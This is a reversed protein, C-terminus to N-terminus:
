NLQDYCFTTSYFRDLPSPAPSTIQCCMIWARAEAKTNRVWVLCNDWCHQEVCQLLPFVRSIVSCVQCQWTVRSGRDDWRCRLPFWFDSDLGECVICLLKKMSLVAVKTRPLVRRYLIQCAKYSKCISGLTLCFRSIYWLLVYQKLKKKKKKDIADAFWKERVQVINDALWRLPM